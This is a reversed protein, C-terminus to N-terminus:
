FARAKSLWSKPLKYKTHQYMTLIKLDYKYLLTMRGLDLDCSRFHRDTHIHESLLNRICQGPVNM